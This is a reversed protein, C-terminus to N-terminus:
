LQDTPVSPYIDDYSPPPLRTSTCDDDSDKGNDLREERSRRRIDFM